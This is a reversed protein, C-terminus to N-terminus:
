QPGVLMTLSKQIYEAEESTPYPGIPDELEDYFYWGSGSYPYNTDNSHHPPLHGAHM